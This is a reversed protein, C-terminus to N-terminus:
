DKPVFIFFNSVTEFHHGKKTKVQSKSCYKLSSVVTTQSDKFLLWPGGFNSFWQDLCNRQKIKERKGSRAKSRQYRSEIQKQGKVRKLPCHYMHTGHNHNYRLLLVKTFANYNQNKPIQSTM